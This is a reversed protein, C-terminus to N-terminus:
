LSLKFTKIEYPKITFEFENENIELEEIESEHLDCECVKSLDRNVKISTNTRRNYAEYVRIIIDNSDEAKKVVELIVNEDRLEIFSYNDELKGEQKELVRNFLPQNLKYAEKVTDAKKWDGQHPYLSYKFKHIERDAAENPDKASKLLTLRMTSGQIDYGYKCDNLLSVGYNDESIDAWKHGVVEFQAKDWSTNSHTNRELNGYQIEYTAKNSHIDVPFEAKLLVQEEKWDITTDYDIRDLDSYIQVLQEIKSDLFQKTLKVTARVPGEELVEIKELDNVEWRKEQYYINIDWADWNHPKDEFAALVNAKEGEQLVERAAKKDYISDINGNDDFKIKFFSNEMEKSNIKLENEKVEAAAEIEEFNFVKFGKAPISQATFIIKKAELDDELYQVAVEKEGDYLKIFEVGAPLEVEVVDDRNFDLQNFVVISDSEVNIAAAIDNISQDLLKQGKEIIELYQEKSEEYVPKISTGPIIDHFQNLLITEWGANIEQQPYDESDLLADKLVSFFELNQYLFESKRNYKKNRAMSTYTGRHYELYLEGVWKPVQSEEKLRNDLDEFFECSSGRKVKPVGPIGKELRKANELMGKTVGGGGDGHGYAFLVENNINKQQYRQWAGKVQSPKLIGNYTTFFGESDYDTTTIFHSLVQSGDIGQWNFTDYPIKNYENWSLKTTMFYDIGFKKLIQPLAASYGFVDPLWLVKNEVGFEDRFFRTGFLIQRILSEGSSINCDAELWMAGEAEWQGSKVKEKIRNFQEPQEEKLYKYLQPQSSMFVYDPYDEMHNLVTSFSRTVKERTQELTWLWAVDIHTHGVCHTIVDDDGCYGNYFQEELYNIAKDVSQHFSESYAKRLDLLNVATNLYNIIDLQIKQNDDNVKAAELPVKLDYYLKEIKPNLISLKAKVRIKGDKFGAFGGRKNAQWTGNYGHLYVTHNKGAEAKKTIEVVKHNQDIGQKIKGDVYIVAEPLKDEFIVVLNEGDMKEPVEFDFKLWFHEKEEAQEGFVYDSWQSSDKNLDNLNKAASKKIKYSDLEVKESYIYDKIEKTLRNLREIKM